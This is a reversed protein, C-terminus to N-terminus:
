RGTNPREGIPAVEIMEAMQIVRDAQGLVDEPVQLTKLQQKM